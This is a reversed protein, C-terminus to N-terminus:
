KEEGLPNGLWPYVKPCKSCVKMYREESVGESIKRVKCVNKSCSPKRKEACAKFEEVPVPNKTYEIVRNTSVLYVDDQELMYELFRQFTAFNHEGRLFWAAHLHVGFPARNSNYSRHFNSKM